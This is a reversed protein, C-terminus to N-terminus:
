AAAGEEGMQWKAMRGHLWAAGGLHKGKERASNPSCIACRPAVEKTKPESFSSWRHEGCQGLSKLVETLLQPREVRQVGRPRASIDFVEDLGENCDRVCIPPRINGRLGSRGANRRGLVLGDFRSKAVVRKVLM